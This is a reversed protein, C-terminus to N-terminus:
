GQKEPLEPRTLTWSWAWTGLLVVVGWILGGAVGLGLGLAVRQLTIILPTHLHCFSNLISLQGLLAALGFLLTVRNRWPLSLLFVIFLPHGILEKFRPRISFWDELSGRFWTELSLVALPSENGSRLLVVALAGAAIFIFAVDGYRIPSQWLELLRQWYDALRRTAAHYADQLTEAQWAYAAFLLVPLALALSVGRFQTIKLMSNADWMGGHILLGGLITIGSATLFALLAPLVASRPPSEVSIAAVSHPAVMRQYTQLALWFGWLPFVLAAAFLVATDVVSVFMAVAAKLATLALFLSWVWRPWGPLWMALLLIGVAGVALTTFLPRVRKLLPPADGPSAPAEGASRNTLLTASAPDTPRAAAGALGKSFEAALKGFYERNVELLRARYGSSGSDLLVSGRVFPRVYICRINRERVARRYRAVAGDVGYNVMEEPPISHVRVVEPAMLAALKRGGDQEDFEIWGFTQDQARLQGAVEELRSPYGLVTPGQFLMLGQRSCYGLTHRMGDEGLYESGSPRLVIDVGHALASASVENLWAVPALMLDEEPLSPFQVVLQWGTEASREYWYGHRAAGRAIDDNYQPQAVTFAPAGTDLSAPKFIGQALLTGVTEEGYCIVAGPLERLLEWPVERMSPDSLHAGEGSEPLSNLAHWDVLILTDRYSQDAAVRLWCSYLATLLGAALFVYCVALQKRSM